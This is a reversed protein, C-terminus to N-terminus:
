ESRLSKVPNSIAARVAHFSITCLVLGTTILAALLFSGPTIDIQYSFDELWLHSLWITIPVSVAMAIAALIMFRRSLLMVINSVSAGLVKRIGIEKVKRSAIFMILGYSGLCSIIIALVSFYGIMKGLQEQGSYNQSLSEDLFTHTFTKDPFFIRWLDEMHALTEPISKNSIEISFVTFQGVNIEMILPAMPETLSLFNFDKVVGIVKGDKGELNISKGIAEQPSGFQFERVAFENIVYANQHDTGYEKSFARGAVLEIEYTAIFDYDVALVPSLINDQATFGEPIINRNIIGAGPTTSSVTSSVVGAVRQLENEFANMRERKEGDIGGFINNTNESQLPVMVIHEKQFGLPRNRLMSLQEFIILTGSILIMSICFQVIVLGKRFSFGGDGRSSIQGKISSLPRLRTVFFAPYLGALLATFAILLVLGTMVQPTFIQSVGLEKGTLGNMQPLLLMTFWVALISALVTTFFSEGLFQKVLNSKGAGLVKRMGIEKTRQLSRATSLNVFNICAILLTMIGVAIFIYIFTLSGPAEEQAQVNNNLHIDMLPQLRFSQEKQQEAPIKEAVFQPFRANVMEPNAGPKLLVYTPSHSIMWNVKYNQEVVQRLGEPEIDYMNQYPVLMDFHVHSNHPFDEVVAVVKFYTEGEMLIQHGLASSEGFYKTAVKESLVVTFPEKLAHQLNGEVATFTFIEFLDPDTFNVATEEFSRDERGESSIRVSAARSYLRATKEVEPFFDAIHESLVPAVRALDFDQILYEVRYIRDKKQHFHDYSYEDAVFIFILLCCTLGAALGLINIVSFTKHRLLNRCATKLYNRIM